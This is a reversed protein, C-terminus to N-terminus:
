RLKNMLKILPDYVLKKSHTSWMFDLHNFYPYPVKFIGAINPLKSALM